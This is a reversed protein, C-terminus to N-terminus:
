KGDLSVWWSREGPSSLLRRVLGYSEWTQEELLMFWLRCHEIFNLGQNATWYCKEKIRFITCGIGTKGGRGWKVFDGVEREDWPKEAQWERKKSIIKKSTWM